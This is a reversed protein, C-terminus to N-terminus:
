HSSNLRTSKRDQLDAANFRVVGALTQRHTFGSDPKMLADAHRAPVEIHYGLVNNHRVKLAAIGARARYDAELGAIARRGGAGTARLEDVARFRTPYPM